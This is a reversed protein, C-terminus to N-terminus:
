KSTLLMEELVELRGSKLFFTEDWDRGFYDSASPGPAYLWANHSEGSDVTVACEIRSYWGADVCEFADVDALHREDIDILKGRVSATPDATVMACPSFPPYDFFIKRYGTLLADQIPFDSGCLAKLIKPHQLVGYAFLKM